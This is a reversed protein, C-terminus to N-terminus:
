SPPAVVIFLLLLARCSGVEENKGGQMGARVDTESRRQAGRRSTRRNCCPMYMSARCNRWIEGWCFEVGSDSRCFPLLCKEAPLEGGSQVATPGSRM